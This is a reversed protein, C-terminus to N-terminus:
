ALYTVEPVRQLFERYALHEVSVLAATFEVRLYGAVAHALNRAFGEHLDSITQVQERGLQGAQRVDWPLVVAPKVGDDATGGRATRVMADIEEQNLVKEM